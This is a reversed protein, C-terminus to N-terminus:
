VSLQFTKGECRRAFVKLVAKKKGRLEPNSSSHKFKRGKNSLKIDYMSKGELLRGRTLSSFFFNSLSKKAKRREAM